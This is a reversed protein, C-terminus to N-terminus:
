RWRSSFTCTMSDSRRASNSRSSCKGSGFSQSMFVPPMRDRRVPSMSVVVPKSCIAMTDGDIEIMRSTIATPTRMASLQRSASMAIATMGPAMNMLKADAFRM